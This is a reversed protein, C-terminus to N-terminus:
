DVQQLDYADVIKEILKNLENVIRVRTSDARSIGECALYEEADKYLNIYPQFDRNELTVVVDVLTRKQYYAIEQERAYKDKDYNEELQLNM